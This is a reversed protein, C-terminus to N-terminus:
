AGTVAADHATAAADYRDTVYHLAATLGAATLPPTYGPPAPVPMNGVGTWRLRGHSDLGSRSLGANNPHLCHPVDLLGTRFAERLARGVEPHLSRVGEVLARAETFLADEEADLAPDHATGTIAIREQEATRHAEELAAIKDQIRPIRRSEAVTKVILRDAGGRVALRASERLLARAGGATRPFVGMYTYLVLHVDIDGLVIKGRSRGAVWANWCTIVLGLQHASALRGGAATGRDLFWADWRLDGPDLRSAAILGQLFEAAAPRIGSAAQTILYAIALSVPPTSGLGSRGTM